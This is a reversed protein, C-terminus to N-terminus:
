GEATLMKGVMEVIEFTTVGVPLFEGVGDTHVQTDPREVFLVKIGPRKTRAMLGLAVGNPQGEPFLVCTILVEVRQAMELAFLASM